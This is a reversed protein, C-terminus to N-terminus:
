WFIVNPIVRVNKWTDGIYGTCKSRIDYIWPPLTSLCAPQPEM